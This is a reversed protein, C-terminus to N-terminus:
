PMGSAASSAPARATKEIIQVIASGEEPLMLGERIVVGRLEGELAPTRQFRLTGDAEVAVLAKAATADLLRTSDFLELEFRDTPGQADDTGSCASLCLALVAGTTLPTLLSRLKVRM